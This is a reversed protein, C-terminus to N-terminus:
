QQQQPNQTPTASQPAAKKPHKHHKGKKAKHHALHSHKKWHKHAKSHKAMKSHGKKWHHKVKHKAHAPKKHTPAAAPQAQQQGNQPMNMGNMNNQALALAPVFLAAGMVWACAKRANKM